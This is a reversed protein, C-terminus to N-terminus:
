LFLLVFFVSQPATQTLTSTATHETLMEEAFSCSNGLVNREREKKGGAGGSGVEM